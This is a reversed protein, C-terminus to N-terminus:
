ECMSVGKVLEDVATKQLGRLLPFHGLLADRAQTDETKRRSFLDVIRNREELGLKSSGGSGASSATSMSSM